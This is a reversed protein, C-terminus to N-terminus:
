FIRSRWDRERTGRWVIDGDRDDIGNDDNLNEGVSYLLFTDDELVYISPKGTFPDVPVNGGFEQALAELTQPYASREVRYVELLLGIRTLDTLAEGCSFTKSYYVIRSGFSSTMLNSIGVKDIEEQIEELETRAEYYPMRASATVRNAFAAFHRRDAALVMGGVPFRYFRKISPIDTMDAIYDLTASRGTEHAPEMGAVIWAAYTELSRALAERQYMDEVERVIRRAQDPALELPPLFNGIGWFAEGYMAMSRMQSWLWPEESLSEALAIAAVCNDVAGELDGQRELVAMEMILLHNMQWLPHLYPLDRYGQAAAMRHFPERLAALARIDDMLDHHENFFSSLFDLNEDTWQAHFRIDWLRDYDIEELSESLKACLEPATGAPQESDSEPTPHASEASAEAEFRKAYEAMVAEGRAKIRAVAPDDENSSLLFTATVAAVGAAFLLALGVIIRKTRKRM